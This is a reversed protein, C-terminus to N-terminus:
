KQCRDHNLPSFAQNYFENYIHTRASVSGRAGVAFIPWAPGISQALCVFYLDVNVFCEGVRDLM